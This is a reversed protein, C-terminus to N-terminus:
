YTSRLLCCPAVSRSSDVRSAESSPGSAADWYDNFRPWAIPLVLPPARGTAAGANDALRRAEAVTSEVYRRHIDMADASVGAHRDTQFGLYISPILVDSAEILWSLEDNLARQFPGHASDYGAGVGLRMWRTSDDINNEFFCADGILCGPYETAWSGCQQPAGDSHWGCWNKRSATGVFPLPNRPYGYWGVLCGPRMARTEDITALMFLKTAEEYQLRRSTAARSLWRASGRM